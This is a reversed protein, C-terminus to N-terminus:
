LVSALVLPSMKDPTIKHAAGTALRLEQSLPTERFLFDLCM